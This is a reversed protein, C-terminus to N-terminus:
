VERTAPSGAGAPGWTGIPRGGPDADALDYGLLVLASGAPSGRGAWDPRLQWSVGAADCLRELRGALGADATVVLVDPQDIKFERLVM